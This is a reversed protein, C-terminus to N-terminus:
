LTAYKPLPRRVSETCLLVRSPHLPATNATGWQDLVPESRELRQFEDRLQAIDAKLQKLISSATVTHESTSASSASSSDEVDAFADM